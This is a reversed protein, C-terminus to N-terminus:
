KFYTITFKTGEGLKSQVSIQGNESEIIARAFSLGIGVSNSSSNKTKYFRNFIHQLDTSAIGEGRDQITIKLYLPCDSVIIKVEGGPNSHEICNKVINSIAETQWRLDINIPAQLDGSQVLTVDQLDALVALKGMVQTIVEGIAIIEPHLIISGNDFKALNLLTTVLVSMSEIQQGISRLFDQRVEPSMDPDDYINDVMIQLSTLPTRLQHSIDALAVELQQKTQRSNEASEKLLVTVKYLENTLLSLDDETNENLKLDYIRESLNQIYAVLERIHRRRLRDLWCFYVVVGAMVLGLTTLTHKVINQSFKTSANSNFDESTYGYKKLAEEGKQALAINSSNLAEVIQSVDLDPNTEVMTGVLQNIERNSQARYSATMSVLDILLVVIAIISIFLLPLVIQKLRRNM